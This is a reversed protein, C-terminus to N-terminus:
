MSPEAGKFGAGERMPNRGPPANASKAFRLWQRALTAEFGLGGIVHRPLRIRLDM